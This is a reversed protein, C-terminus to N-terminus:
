SFDGRVILSDREKSTANHRYLPWIAYVAFPIDHFSRTRFVKYRAEAKKNREGDDSFTYMHRSM